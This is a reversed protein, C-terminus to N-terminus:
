YTGGPTETYEIVAAAFADKYVQPAPGNKVRSEAEGMRRLLDGPGTSDSAIQGMIRYAAERAEGKWREERATRRAALHDHPALATSM